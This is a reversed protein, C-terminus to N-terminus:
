GSMTSRKFAIWDDGVPNKPSLRVQGPSRRIAASSKRHTSM